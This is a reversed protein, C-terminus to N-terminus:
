NIRAADIVWFYLGKSGTRDVFKLDYYEGKELLDFIEKPVSLSGIISGEEQSINASYYRKENGTVKDISVTKNKGVIEVKANFIM